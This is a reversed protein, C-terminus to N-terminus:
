QLMCGVTNNVSYCLPNQNKLWKVNRYLEIHMAKNVLSFM